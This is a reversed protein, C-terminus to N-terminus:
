KVHLTAHVAVAHASKVRNPTEKRMQDATYESLGYHSPEIYMLEDGWAEVEGPDYTGGEIRRNFRQVFAGVFIKTLEVFSSVRVAEDILVGKYMEFEFGQQGQEEVRFRETKVLKGDVTYNKSPALLTVELGRNNKSKQRKAAGDGDIDSRDTQIHTEDGVIESKKRKRSKQEFHVIGSQCAQSGDGSPFGKTTASSEENRKRKPSAQAPRPLPPGNTPTYAPSTFSSRRPSGFGPPSSTPMNKM